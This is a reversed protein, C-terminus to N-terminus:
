GLDQFVWECVDLQKKRVCVQASRWSRAAGLYCHTSKQQLCRSQARLFARRRVSLLPPPLCALSSAATFCQSLLWLTLAAYQILSSPWRQIEPLHSNSGLRQTSKKQCLFLWLHQWMNSWMKSHTLSAGRSKSIGKVAYEPIGCTENVLIYSKAAMHKYYLNHMASCTILSQMSYKHLVQM